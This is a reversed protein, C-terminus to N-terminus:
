DTKHSSVNMKVNGDETVVSTKFKFFAEVDEECSARVLTFDIRNMFIPSNSLFVYMDMGDVRWVVSDTNEYIMPYSDNDINEFTEHFLYEKLALPTYLKNKATFDSRREATERLSVPDDYSLIRKLPEYIAQTEFSMRIQKNPPLFKVTSLNHERDALKLLWVRVDYEGARLFRATKDDFKEDRLRELYFDLYCKSVADVLFGIGNGFTNYIDAREVKECDELTDHLFAASTLTVDQYKEWTVKAVAYLHTFYPEGSKRKHDKHADQAFDFARQITHFDGETKCDSPTVFDLSFNM